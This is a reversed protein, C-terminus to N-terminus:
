MIREKTRGKMWRSGGVKRDGNKVEIQPPRNQITAGM